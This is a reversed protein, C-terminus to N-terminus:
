IIGTWPSNLWHCGPQPHSFRYFFNVTYMGTTSIHKGFTCYLSNHIWLPTPVLKLKEEEYKASFSNKPLSTLFNPIEGDESLSVRHWLLHSYLNRSNIHCKKTKQLLCYRGDLNKANLSFVQKGNRDKACVLNFIPNGCFKLFYGVIIEEQAYLFYSQLLSVFHVLHTKLPPPLKRPEPPNLLYENIM